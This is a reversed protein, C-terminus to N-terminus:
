SVGGGGEKEREKRSYNKTKTGPVAPKNLPIALGTHSWRPRSSRRGGKGRRLTKGWTSSPTSRFRQSLQPCAPIWGAIGKGKEVDCRRSVAAGGEKGILHQRQKTAPCARSADRQLARAGGDNKRSKHHGRPQPLNKFLLSLVSGRHDRHM